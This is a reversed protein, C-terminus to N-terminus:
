EANIYLISLMYKKHKDTNLHHKQNNITYSSGCNCEYKKKYRDDNKKNQYRQAYVDKKDIYYEKMTRTPINNNVVNESNLIYYQERQKLELLHNFEFKEILEIEYNNNKLIEFSTYYQQKKQDYHRYFCEHQQLRARLPKLTSGIYQKNTSLCKLRYLNGIFAM